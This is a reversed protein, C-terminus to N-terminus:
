AHSLWKQVAAVLAPHVLKGLREGFSSSDRDMKALAQSLKEKRTAKTLKDSALLTLLVAETSTVTANRAATVGDKLEPPADM